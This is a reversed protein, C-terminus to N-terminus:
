RGQITGGLGERGVKDHAASLQAACQSLTRIRELQLAACCCLVYTGPM